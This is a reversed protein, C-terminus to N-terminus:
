NYPPIPGEVRVWSNTGAVPAFVEWTKWNHDADTRSLFPLARRRVQHDSFYYRRKYHSTRTQPGEPTFPYVTGTIIGVVIVVENTKHNQDTRPYIDRVESYKSPLVIFCGTLALLSFTCVPLVINRVRKM